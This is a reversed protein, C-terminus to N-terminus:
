TVSLDSQQQPSGSSSITNTMFITSSSNPDEYVHKHCGPAAGSNEFSVMSLEAASAEPGASVEAPEPPLRANMRFSGVSAESPPHLGHLRYLVVFVLLHERSVRCCTQKRMSQPGWGPTVLFHETM